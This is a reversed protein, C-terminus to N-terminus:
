VCGGGEELLVGPRRASKGAHAICAHVGRVAIYKAVQQSGLVSEWRCCVCVWGARFL